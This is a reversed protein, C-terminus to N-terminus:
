LSANFQNIATELGALETNSFLDDTYTKAYAKANTEADTAAQAAAAADSVAQNATGQAADAAAQAAVAKGDATAAAAAAQDATGQAAVAKGDATAAAAAAAAAAADAADVDNKVSGETTYGNLVGSIYAVDADTAYQDINLGAVTDDTYKKASSLTAADQNDVYTTTAYQSINLATIAASIAADIGSLKIQNGSITLYGESDAAVTYVDVLEDISVVVDSKSGSLEYTFTLNRTDHDYSVNALFQDKPINITGIPEGGQTITYVNAYEGTAGSYTVAVVSDTVLQDVKGSVVDLNSSVTNLNGSVTNLNGSVINLNGSVTTINQQNIVVQENLTVEGEGTDGIKAKIEDIAAKLSGEATFGNLYGGTITDYNNSILTNLSSVSTGIKTNLKVDAEHLGSLINYINAAM